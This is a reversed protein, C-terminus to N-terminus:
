KLRMMKRYAKGRPTSYSEDRKMQVAKLKKHMKDEVKSMGRAMVMLDDMMSKLERLDVDLKSGKKVSRIAAPLLESLYRLEEQAFNGFGGNLFDPNMENLILSLRDSIPQGQYASEIKDVKVLKATKGSRSPRAAVVKPKKKAVM